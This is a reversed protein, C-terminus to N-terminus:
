RAQVTQERAFHIALATPLRHQQWGTWAHQLALRRGAAECAAAAAAAAAAATEGTAIAVHRLPHAAQAPLSSAAAVGAAPAHRGDGAGGDRARQAAHLAAGLLLEVQELLRQAVHDRAHAQVLVGGVLLAEQV